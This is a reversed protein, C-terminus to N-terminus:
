RKPSIIKPHFGEEICRLLELKGLFPSGGGGCGLLGAGLALCEVDHTSVEWEGAENVTPTIDCPTPDITNPSQTRPPKSVPSVPLTESEPHIETFFFVIVSIFSHIFRQYLVCLVVKVTFIM